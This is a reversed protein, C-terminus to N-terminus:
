QLILLYCKRSVHFLLLSDHRTDFGLGAADLYDALRLLFKFGFQAADQITIECFDAGIRFPFRQGFDRGLYAARDTHFRALAVRLQTDARETFAGKVHGFLESEFLTETIAGADVNVIPKQARDSLRHIERALMDKGTGNEGTILITADTDAIKNVRSRIAKMAKGNGWFMSSDAESETPKPEKKNVLSAKRLTDILKENDWPKVIFDFAGRKMGEVALAIDAYATFLVVEIEEYKSKIESLWFLGENGTNIDTHFNMDLLVVDPSFSSIKSM